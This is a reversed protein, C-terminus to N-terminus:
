YQRHWINFQLFSLTGSLAFPVVATSFFFWDPPRARRLLLALCAACAGAAVVAAPVSPVDYQSPAFMQYCTKAVLWWSMPPLWFGEGVQRSQARLVPLWPSWLVLASGYSLLLGRTRADKLLSGPRWARDAAVYGLAFTAQAAISFMAYPHTYAFLTIALTYAPWGSPGPGPRWLTRLLLWGSFAALATGLTYMRVENSWLIHFTSFAVLAAALLGIGSARHTGGDDGRRGRFAESALLYMGLITAEGMLVSLFRLSWPSDGFAGAWLKLLIFYLPGHNDMAVRAIMERWPFTIIKWSFGEDFWYSRGGLRDVRLALGAALILGLGIAPHRSPSWGSPPPGPEAGDPRGGHRGRHGSADLM